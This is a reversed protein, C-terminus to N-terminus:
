TDTGMPSDSVRRAQSAAEFVAWDLHDIRWPGRDLSIALTVAQIMRVTLRVADEVTLDITRIGMATDCEVSVAARGAIAPDGMDERLGADERFWMTKVSIRDGSLADKVTM